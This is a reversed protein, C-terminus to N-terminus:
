PAGLTVPRRGDATRVEFRAIRSPGPAAGGAVTATRADHPRVSCRTVTRESGDRGVAVLRGTHPDAADRIRLPAESGGRTGAAGAEARM